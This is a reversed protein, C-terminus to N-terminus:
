DPDPYVNATAVFAFLLVAKRMENLVQNELSGPPTVGSLHCGRQLRQPTRQIGECRALLGTVGGTYEIFM